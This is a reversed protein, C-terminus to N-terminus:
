PAAAGKCVRSLAYGGRSSLSCAIGGNKHRGMAGSIRGFAVKPVATGVGFIARRQRAVVGREVSDPNNQLRPTRSTSFGVRAQDWYFQADRTPLLRHL